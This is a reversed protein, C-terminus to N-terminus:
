IRSIIFIHQIQGLPQGFKVHYDPESKWLADDTRTIAYMLEKKYVYETHFPTDLKIFKSGPFWETVLEMIHHTHNINFGLQFQYM